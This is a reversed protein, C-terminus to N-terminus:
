LTMDASVEPVNVQFFFFPWVLVGSLWSLVFSISCAAMHTHIKSPHFSVHFSKSLWWVSEFPLQEHWGM